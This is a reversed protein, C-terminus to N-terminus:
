VLTLVVVFLNALSNKESGFVSLSLADYLNKICYIRLKPSKSDVFNKHNRVLLPMIIISFISTKIQRLPLNLLFVLQGYMHALTSIALSMGFSKHVELLTYLYKSHPFYQFRNWRYIISIPSLNFFFSIIWKQWKCTSVKNDKLNSKTM